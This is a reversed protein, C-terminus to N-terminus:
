WEGSVSGGDDGPSQRERRVTRIIWLFALYDYSAHAAIPVLLSREGTADLLWGLYGGVAAAIAGYLLTVCHLLGFVLNSWLLGGAYGAHREIWPQLLGRFLLEECFGVFAALLLLDYWRCQALPPGLMEVLLREIRRLRPLPLKECLAVPVFLGAGALLGWGLDSWAFSLSALPDVDVAWGLGLALLVLASEFMAAVRLFQERTQFDLM